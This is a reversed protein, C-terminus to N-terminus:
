KRDNILEEFLTLTQKVARGWNYYGIVDERAKNGMARAQDRNEYLSLIKEAIDDVSNDTLLGNEGHRIVDKIQGLASAIVPLSCSMYDFLKLPSAYFGMPSWEYGQYLCLSADVSAMYNAVELYPVNQMIVINNRTEYNQLHVPNGMIVFKIKKIGELKKATQYIIDIGQWRFQTSGAWLITFDDEPIEPFLTRDRKNPSFLAPDSGNPTVMVKRVRLDNSAYQGMEDSVCIAADAVPTLAKWISEVVGSRFNMREAAPANIEWVLPIRRGKLLKLLSLVDQRLGGGLRLYLVDIQKLFSLIHSKSHRVYGDFPYEGQLAHIEHGSNVFGKILQYVHVSSGTKPPYNGFNNIYGIKM